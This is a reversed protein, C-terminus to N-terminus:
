PLLISVICGDVYVLVLAMCHFSTIAHIITEFQNQRNATYVYIVKTQEEQQKRTILQQLSSQEIMAPKPYKSMVLPELRAKEVERGELPLQLLLWMEYICLTRNGCSKCEDYRLVLTDRLYDHLM